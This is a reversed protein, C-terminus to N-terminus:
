LFEAPTIRAKSSRSRSAGRRVDAAVIRSWKAPNVIGSSYLLADAKEALHSAESVPLWDALRRQLAAAYIPMDLRQLAAIAHEFHVQPDSYLQAHCAQVNLVLANAWPANERQLHKADKRAIRLLRRADGEGAAAIASLARLYRFFIRVSQFRFYMSWRLRPWHQQLRTWAAVGCGDYLDILTKAILAAVHQVHFDRLSSHSLAEDCIGRAARPDDDALRALPAGLTQINMIAHLNGRQRADDLLQVSLRKLSTYDGFQTLAWLRFCDATDVEWVTGVCQERFIARAAVCRENAQRWHGLHFAQVGKALEVMAAAHPQDLTSAIEAAQAITEDCSPKQPWGETALMFAEFAMARALRYRDGSQKALRLHHTHLLGGGLTDFMSIGTAASWTLDVREFDDRVPRSKPQGGLTGIARRWILGAATVLPTKPLRLGHPLLLERFMQKGLDIHGSVCYQYAAERLLQPRCEASQRTAAQQYERAADYSQGANVLATALEAQITGHDERSTDALALTQRYLRAAREFALTSSAEKAAALLYEVARPVRDAALLHNALTEPDTDGSAELSDALRLHRACRVEPSLRVSICERIRDHYTELLQGDSTGSGRVLLLARLLSLPRDAATLEAARLTDRLRIPRGALAVLEVLQRADDDLRSVRDWIAEDLDIPHGHANPTSLGLCARHVLERIFFPAGKAEQAIHRAQAVDGRHAILLCRALEAADDCELPPVHIRAETWTSAERSSRTPLASLCPHQGIAEDRYTVLLLMRPPQLGSVLEQIVIGSDADGWQLDDIWLILTQRQGIHFLLERLAEFARRRLQLVDAIKKERVVAAAAIQPIRRLGPFVTALADIDKPLLAAFEPGSLEELYRGLADVLNDLAKYPVSECEYCRGAFVRSGTQSGMEELFHEILRTKGVGSAGHIHAVITRGTALDTALGRLRRVQERRGIFPTHQEPAVPSASSLAIKSPACCELVEAAGARMDPWPHLLRMCLENLDPPTTPVLAAPSLPVQTLKAKLLEDRNGKIPKQGTLALYLMVGIAYFDSAGSLESGAAQEPSMYDLTGARGLPDTTPEREDFYTTAVDITPPPRFAIEAALGFDLIVLREHEDIIMNSPKLDRHLRGSQHLFSVGEAMQRLANRLRAEGYADLIWSAPSSNHEDFRTADSRLDETTDLSGLGIQTSGRRVYDLFGNGKILEMTLFWQDVSSVLEYLAILNPHVIGALARFERKLRYLKQADASESNPGPLTRITKLAIRQGRERDWAEHVVGMGGIGIQKLLFYRGSNAFSESDRLKSAGECIAPWDLECESIVSAGDIEARPDVNTFATRVM